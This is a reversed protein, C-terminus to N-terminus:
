GPENLVELAMCVLNEAMTWYENDPRKRSGPNLINQKWHELRYNSDDIMDDAYIQYTEKDM